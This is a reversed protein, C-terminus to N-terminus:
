EGVGIIAGYKIIETRSPIHISLNRNDNQIEIDRMRSIIDDIQKQLDVKKKARAINEEGVHFSVAEGLDVFAKFDELAEEFPKTQSFSGDRLETSM